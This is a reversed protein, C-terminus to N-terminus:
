LGTALTGGVATEDGGGGRSLPSECRAILVGLEVREDVVGHQELLGRQRGRRQLPSAWAVRARACSARASAWTRRRLSPVTEGRVEVIGLEHRPTGSATNESLRRRGTDIRASTGCLLRGSREGPRRPRSGRGHARTRTLTQEGADGV